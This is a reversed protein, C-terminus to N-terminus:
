LETTSPGPLVLGDDDPCQLPPLLPRAREPPEYPLQRWFRWAGVRFEAARARHLAATAKTARVVDWGPGVGISGFAYADWFAKSELTSALGEYNDSWERCYALRIQMSRYSVMGMALFAVTVMLRRVTFRPRALQM